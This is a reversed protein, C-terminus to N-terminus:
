EVESIARRTEDISEAVARECYAALAKRDGKERISAPPLFTLTVDIRGLALLEWLHPLLVMDGYWAVQPWQGSDIPLRRIHTYAIAAPQVAIEQEGSASEAIQFLSSKFPNMRVGNGTTSEPFISVVERARLARRIAEMASHLAEPKREIYIVGAINSLTSIGPWGSIESKPTFRFPFVSGLVMVDLYSVHNSVLLLPRTTSVGGRVRVRVGLILLIGRHCWCGLRDRVDKRKLKLAAWGLAMCALLWLVLLFAKVPRLM